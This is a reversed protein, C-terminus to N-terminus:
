WNNWGTFHVHNIANTVREFPEMLDDIESNESLMEDIMKQYEDQNKFFKYNGSNNEESIFCVPTDVKKQLKLLSEDKIMILNPKNEMKEHLPFAIKDIALGGMLTIGYAIKEIASAKVTETFRLEVPYGNGDTVLMGGGLDKESGIETVILFGILFNHDSM